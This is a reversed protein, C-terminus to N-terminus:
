QANENRLNEESPAVATAAAQQAMKQAINRRAQEAWVPMAHRTDTVIELRDVMDPQVDAMDVFFQEYWRRLQYIPGDTDCLLPNDIRTKSEWIQVDQLTGSRSLHIVSAARRANQEESLDPRKKVTFGMFLRFSDADLPLQALIEIYEIVDDGERKMLRAHLYAPGFYFTEGRSSAVLEAPVGTNGRDYAAAVDPDNGIELLQLAVHGDFVNKFYTAAGGMGSGHVYFFHAVDVINDVLERGPVQLEHVSMDWDSWTGDFLGEIRPITVEPPPPNGEPDHWVFLLKNEELLPWSRMRAGRPVRKAYPIGSCRGNADWRWDHFPCAVSDGKVTGQSLDGGLHPCYADLVGLPGSETQFVVLRSGFATVGHPKGDKFQEALGLCHWGRAMRETRDARAIRIEDAAIVTERVGM